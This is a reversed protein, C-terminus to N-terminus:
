AVQVPALVPQLDGLTQVAPDHPVLGFPLGHVAPVSQVLM